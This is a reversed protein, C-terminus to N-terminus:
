FSPNHDTWYADSITFVLNAIQLIKWIHDIMSGSITTPKTTKLTLSRSEMFLHLKKSYTEQLMDINFDGAILFHTNNINNSLMQELIDFLSELRTHPAVYINILKLVIGQLLIDTSIAEISKNAYNESKLIFINKKILTLIGHVSFTTLSNYTDKIKNKNPPLHLHTEQLFLIDSQMLENDNTVEDSHLHLSRTNLSFVLIHNQNPISRLGYQFNWARTKQLREIEAAITPSLSFNNKELRNLFYIFKMDKVRSLATYVLGYKVVGKPDFALKEM